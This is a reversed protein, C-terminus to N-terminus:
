ECPVLGCESRIEGPAGRPWGRSALVVGRRDREPALPAGPGRVVGAGAPGVGGEGQGRHAGRESRAGRPGGNRGGKLGGGAAGLPLRSSVVGAQRSPVAAAALVAHSRGGQVVAGRAGREGRMEPVEPEKVSGAHGAQTRMRRRGIRHRGRREGQGEGTRRPGGGATGDTGAGTGQQGPQVSRQARTGWDLLGPSTRVARCAAPAALAGGERSGVRRGRGGGPKRGRVAAQAGPKGGGQYSAGKLEHAGPHAAKHAPPPTLQRQSATRCGGDGRMRQM